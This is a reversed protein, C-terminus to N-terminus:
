PADGRSCVSCILKCSGWRRTCENSALRKAEILDKGGSWAIAGNRARALSGCANKFWIVIQCDERNCSALARQEAENKSQYGWASGFRRSSQSYSIAGYFDAPSVSGPGRYKPYNALARITPAYAIPKHNHSLKGFQGVRAIAYRDLAWPVSEFHSAAYCCACALAMAPMTMLMTMIVLFFGHSMRRLALKLITNM